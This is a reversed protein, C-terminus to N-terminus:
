KRRLVVPYDMKERLTIRGDAFEAAMVEPEPKEAGGEHTTTLVLKSGDLKWTGRSDMAETGMKAFSTFTGDPELVLEMSWAGAQEDISEDILRGFEEASVGPPPPNASLWDKIATRLAAEDPVYTGEVGSGGGGCSVLSFALLGLLALTPNRM